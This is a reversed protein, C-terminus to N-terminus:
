AAHPLEDDDTADIDINFEQRAFTAVADVDYGPVGYRDNEIRVAPDLLTGRQARKKVGVVTMGFLAALDAISYFRRGEAPPVQDTGVVRYWTAGPRKVGDATLWGHARGAALVRDLRWGRGRQNPVTLGITIDPAPFHGAADLNFLTPWNMDLQRACDRLGIYPPSSM